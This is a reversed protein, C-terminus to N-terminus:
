RRSAALAAAGTAAGLAGVLLALLLMAGNDDSGPGTGTDPATVGTRATPTAVPATTPAATPEPAPPEVTSFNEIQWVEGLLTTVYATDGSFDLSTPLMFGTVLPSLTSGSLTLIKGSFPDGEPSTDTSGFQLAYTGAPGNEVDILQAFGGAVTVDEEATTGIADVLVERGPEDVLEFQM